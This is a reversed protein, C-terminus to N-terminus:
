VLWDCACGYENCEVCLPGPNISGWANSLPDFSEKGTDICVYRNRYIGINYEHCDWFYLKAKKAIDDVLQQIKKLSLKKRIKVIQTLFGWGTRCKISDDSFNLRCIKSYVKPALGLKSLKKQIKYAYKAKARSNFEKFGITKSEKLTYFGASGGEDILFKATYKTKM